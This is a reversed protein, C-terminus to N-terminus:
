LLTRNQRAHLKRDGKKNGTSAWRHRQLWLCQLTLPAAESCKSPFVFSWNCKCLLARADEQIQEVAIQVDASAEGVVHHPDFRIYMAPKGTRAAAPPLEIQRVEGDRNQCCAQRKHHDFGNRFANVTAGDGQLAEWRGAVRM